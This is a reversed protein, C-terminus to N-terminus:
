GGPGTLLRWARMVAKYTVPHDDHTKKVSVDFPDDLHTKKHPVKDFAISQCDEYHGGDKFRWSKDRLKQKARVSGYSCLRLDSSFIVGEQVEEIQGSWGQLLLDYNAVSFATGNFMDEMSRVNRVDWGSLDQNFSTAGSFMRNMDTVSGVDWGSLDQDFATAGLFMRNMDTVSGVDWGGIDGKFETDAFMYATSTCFSLDPKDGAPVTLNTCGRFAKEMSAWRNTGWQDVSLIDMNGDFYPSPFLGTISVKYTGAGPLAITRAGDQLLESGKSGPGNEFSGNEAVQAWHVNYLYQSQVDPPLPAVPITIETGTAEWTTIFAAPDAFPDYEEAPGAETLVQFRHKAEVTGAKAGETPLAGAKAQSATITVVGPGVLSIEGSGEDITAVGVDSSAYTVM